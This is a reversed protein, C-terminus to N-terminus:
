TQVQLNKQCSSPKRPQPFPVADCVAYCGTMNTAVTAMVSRPKEM